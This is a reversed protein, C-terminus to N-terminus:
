LASIIVIAITLGNIYGVARSEYLADGFGSACIGFGILYSSSDSFLADMSITSTRSSLIIMDFLVPVIAFLATAGFWKGVKRKLSQSGAERSIRRGSRGSVVLGETSHDDNASPSTM